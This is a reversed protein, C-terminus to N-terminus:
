MPKHSMLHLKIELKPMQTNFVCNKGVSNQFIKWNAKGVDGVDITNDSFSAWTELAEDSYRGATNM